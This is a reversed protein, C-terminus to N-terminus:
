RPIPLIYLVYRFDRDLSWIKKSLDFVIDGQLHMRRHDSGVRCLLFCRVGGKLGADSFRIPPPQRNKGMLMPLAISAAYCIIGTAIAYGIYKSKGRLSTGLGKALRRVKFGGISLLLVLLFPHFLLPWVKQGVFVYLFFSINVVGVFLIVHPAGWEQRYFFEKDCVTRNRKLLMLLLICNVAPKFLLKILPEEM